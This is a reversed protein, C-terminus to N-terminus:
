FSGEISILNSIFLSRTGLAKFFVNDCKPRFYIEEGDYDKPLNIFLSFPQIRELMYLSTNDDKTLYEVRDMTMGKIIVKKGTAEDNEISKNKITNIEYYKEVKANSYINIIEGIDPEHAMLSYENEISFEKFTSLAGELYLTDSQTTARHENTQNLVYVYSLDSFHIIKNSSITPKYIYEYTLLINEGVKLSLLNIGNTPDLEIINEGDLFVSEKVFELNQNKNDKLYIDKVDVSGINNIITQIKLVDNNQLVECSPIKIIDISVYEVNLKTDNSKFRKIINEGNNNFHSDLEAFFLLQNKYPLDHIKYDFSVVKSQNCKLPGINVKDLICSTNMNKDNICLSNEIYAIEKPISIQIDIFDCDVNGTNVINFVFKNITNLMITNINSKGKIDINYNKINLNLKNSKSKILIDEGFPSINYKASVFSELINKDFSVLDEITYRIAINITEDIDLKNFKLEDINNFYNGNVFVIKSCSELFTNENLDINIDKLEINGTNKININQTFEMDVDIDKDSIFKNISISPNIISIEGQIHKFKTYPKKNKLDRFMYGFVIPLNLNINKQSKLKANFELYIRQSINLSPLYLLKDEINCYNKNNVKISSEDIDLYEFSSLKLTINELGVNGKNQLEFNFHILDEKFCTKKFVNPDDSNIMSNLDKVLLVPNNVYLKTSNSYIIKTELNDEFMYFYKLCGRSNVPNPKPYDLIEVQYDIKIEQNPKIKSIAIGDFINTDPYNTGDVNLSGIVFEISPNQPVELELSECDINGTNKILMSYTVIDKIQGTENKVEMYFNNNGIRAGIITTSTENSYTKITKLKNKSSYEVYTKAKENTCIDIAKAKYSIKINEGPSINKFIIGDKIINFDNKEDAIYLSSDIFELGSPLSDRILVDTADANGTNTIDINFDVVDYLQLIHKNQSKKISSTDIVPSYVKLDIARSNNFYSKRHTKYFLSVMMNHINENSMVSTKFTIVLSEDEDLDGLVINDSLNEGVRYIDGVILSNEIFGVKNYFNNELSLDFLPFNTTNNITITHTIIDNVLAESKNISYIFNNDNFIEEDSINVSISDKNIEFNNGVEDEYYLSPNITIFSIDSDDNINFHLNMNIKKNCGLNKILIKDDNFLLLENVHTPINQKILSLDKCICGNIEINQIDLNSSNEICINLSVCEDRFYKDKLFRVKFHDNEIDRVFDVKSNPSRYTFDLLNNDKVVHFSFYSSIEDILNKPLNVVKLPINLSVKFEPEINKVSIFEKSCNLLNEDLIEFIDENISLKFLGNEIVYESKNKIDVKLIIEQDLYLYKEDIDLNIDIYNMAGNM